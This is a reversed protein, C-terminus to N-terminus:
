LKRKFFYNCYDKLIDTFFNTKRGVVRKRKDCWGTLSNDFPNLFTCKRCCKEVVVGFM